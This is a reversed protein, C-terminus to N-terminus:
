LEPLSKQEAQRGCKLARPIVNPRGPTVPNNSLGFLRGMKRLKIFPM